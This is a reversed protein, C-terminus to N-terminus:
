ETAWSSQFKLGELGTETTAVPRRSGEKKKKKKDQQVTRSLILAVPQSLSQSGPVGCTGSFRSIFQM